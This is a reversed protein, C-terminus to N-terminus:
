HERVIEDGGLTHPVGDFMDVAEFSPCVGWNQTEIFHSLAFEAFKMAHTNFNFQGLCYNLEGQYAYDFTSKVSVFLLGLTRNDGIRFEIEYKDDKIILQYTDSYIEGLTPFNAWQTTQYWNLNAMFSRQSKLYGLDWGPFRYRNIGFSMHSAIHCDPSDPGM